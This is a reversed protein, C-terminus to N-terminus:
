ERQIIWDVIDQLVREGQLDRMLMHYGGKYLTMEQQGQTRLPLRQFFAVVPERPIIEDKEGYLILANVSLQEASNFAEDMLNSLGYLVEIRTEKIVLPDRGLEKLMELNDSAVIDLSRGSVKMWPVIHATLWLAFRQYVPMESRAWVAPAVLIVGNVGPPATRTMTLITVAGGMSDGLIYIPLGPHATRVLTVLAHLDEVMAQRGSWRGRTKTKGFGRQDYAYVAVHHSNFFRAADTIFNSYDNLGHVGVIIADIDRSPLWMRLPLEANDYSIFTHGSIEPSGVTTLAPTVFDPSCAALIFVLGLHLGLSIIPTKLGNRRCAM